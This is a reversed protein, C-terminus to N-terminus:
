QRVNSNQTKQTQGAARPGTVKAAPSTKFRKDADYSWYM